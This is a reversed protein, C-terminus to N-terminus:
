PNVSSGHVKTIWASAALLDEVVVDAEHPKGFEKLHTAGYGTLIFISTVGSKKAAKMDRVSDGIFFSKTLDLNQDSSAKIIMGNGPKRCECSISYQKVVGDKLHPCYYVADLLPGEKALQDIMRQNIQKLKEETNIGRAVSSQNTIVILKYGLLKIRKLADTAGPLLAIDDESTIHGKEEVITGDRDLFVAVNKGSAM